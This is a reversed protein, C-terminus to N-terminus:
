KRNSAIKTYVRILFLLGALLGIGAVIYVMASAFEILLTSIWTMFFGLIQEASGTSSASAMGAVWFVLVTYTALLTARVVALLLGLRVAIRLIKAHSAFKPQINTM